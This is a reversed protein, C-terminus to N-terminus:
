NESRLKPYSNRPASPYLLSSVWELGPIPPIWTDEYHGNAVVVRDWRSEGDKTEIIWQCTDEDKYLRLVPTSFRIHPRLNFKDAYSELYEQVQARDPFLPSGEKFTHDRFSM